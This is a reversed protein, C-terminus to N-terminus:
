SGHSGAEYFSGNLGTSLACIYRIRAYISSGHSGAEYFSGYLGTSLACIYRTRAYISPDMVALKM